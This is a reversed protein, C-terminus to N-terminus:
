SKYYFAKDPVKGGLLQNNRNVLFKFFENVEEESDDTKKYELNMKSVSNVLVTEDYTELERYKSLISGIHTATDKNLSEVSEKIKNSFELISSIKNSNPNIFVGFQVIKPLSQVTQLDFVFLEVESSNILISLVPESILAYDFKNMKLPGVVDSVSDYYTVQSNVDSLATQLVIGPTAHEGFAIITKNELENISKIQNRGVLYLNGWGIVSQLQYASAGKNYLTAGLVVPAVIIDYEAKQFEATLLNPGNVVQYNTDQLVTAMSILPSGAPTMVKLQNTEKNNSQCSTLVLTFLLLLCLVVKKYKM